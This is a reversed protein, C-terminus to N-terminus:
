CLIMGLTVVRGGAMDVAMEGIATKSITEVPPAISQMGTEEEPPEDTEVETAVNKSETDMQIWESSPAIIPLFPWTM